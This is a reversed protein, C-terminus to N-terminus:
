CRLVPSSFVRFSGGKTEIWPKFFVGAAEVRLVAAKAVNRAQRNGFHKSTKFSAAKRLDVWPKSFRGAGQGKGCRRKGREQGAQQRLEM